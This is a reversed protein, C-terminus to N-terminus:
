CQSSCGDNDIVNGDDCQSKMIIGDGCIDVCEEGRFTYFDKCVCSGNVLRFNKSIDCAMCVTGTGSADWVALSCGVVTTCREQALHGFRCQCIGDVTPM